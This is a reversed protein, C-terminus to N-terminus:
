SAFSDFARQLDGLAIFTDKCPGAPMKLEISLVAIKEHIDRVGSVLDRQCAIAIIATPRVEIVKERASRGTPAIHIELGREDAMERIERKHYNALCRPALVLIRKSHKKVGENLTLANSLTIASAGLRDRSIGFREVLPYLWVTIRCMHRRLRSFPYRCRGTKWSIFLEMLAATPVLAAAILLGAIIAGPVINGLLSSIVLAAGGFIAAPLWIFILTAISLVQLILHPSESLYATNMCVRGNWDAWEHGLKRDKLLRGKELEPDLEREPIVAAPKNNTQIM